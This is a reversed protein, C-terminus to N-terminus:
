GEFFSAMKQILNAAPNFEAWSPLDEPFPIGDKYLLDGHIKVHEEMEQLQSVTFEKAVEQFQVDGNWTKAILQELNTYM